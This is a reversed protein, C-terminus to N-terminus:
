NCPYEFQSTADSIDDWGGLHDVDSLAIAPSGVYDVHTVTETDDAHGQAQLGKGKAPKPTTSPPAAPKETCDRNLHAGGCTYCPGPQRGNGGGSTQFQDGRAM